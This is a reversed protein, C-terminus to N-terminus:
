NLTVYTKSLSEAREPFSDDSKTGEKKLNREATDRRDKTTGKVVRRILESSSEQKKNFTKLM